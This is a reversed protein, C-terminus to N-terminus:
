FQRRCTSLTHRLGDSMTTNSHFLNLARSTALRAAEDGGSLETTAEARFKAKIKGGPNGICVREGFRSTIITLIKISEKREMTEPTPNPAM